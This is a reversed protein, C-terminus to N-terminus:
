AYTYKEAPNQKIWSFMSGNRQIQDAYVFGQVHSAGMSKAFKLDKETEVGEIILIKKYQNCFSVTKKLLMRYYLDHESRDFFSKDIKIYQGILMLNSSFHTDFGFLDDVAFEMGNRHLMEGFVKSSEAEKKTKSETIEIVINQRNKFYNLWYERADHTMISQPSLNLFIKTNCIPRYAIQHEKVLLEVSHLLAHDKRCANFVQTPTYPKDELSFRALAEFAHIRGTGIHIIPQYEVWCSRSDVIEKVIKKTCVRRVKTM